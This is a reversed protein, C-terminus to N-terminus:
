QTTIFYKTIMNPVEWEPLKGAKLYQMYKNAVEGFHAEHGTDYSQPIVIEWGKAIKKLEIGAYKTQLAKFNETVAAEYEPTSSIGEIFLVPKFNQEKGQRVILNAKSGKMISYHTD